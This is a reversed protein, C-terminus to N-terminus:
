VVALPIVVRFTTAGPQSDVEISGSHRHVVIGYSIELGLGTGAGPPKTTFFADFIRPQVDAPIGPGNDTIEILAVDEATATRITIRANSTDSLADAANDILNTWVQNLEGPDALVELTGDLYKREVEIDSLKHGLIMLTDDLGSHVDIRALPAQDLHSYSKLAGVIASMRSSSEAIERIVSAVEAAAACAEIVAAGREEFESFITELEDTALGAAVARPALQAAIDVGSRRLHRDVDDELDARELAGLAPGPERAIDLLRRLSEHGDPDLGLARMEGVATAHRDVAEALFEAGAVIAAAPNNLEHALGATLTGLQAMREAQRLHAETERWRALLVGFLARSAGVSSDLLRDLSTKSIAVLEVENKARVTAMRPAADLLAMEGIVDGEGRLALLVQRPGSTKLVEVNGGSIVYAADGHDGESFLVEGPGLAATTAQAALAGLDEVSLDSFLPVSRLTEQLAM